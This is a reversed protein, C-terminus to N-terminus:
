AYGITVITVTFLTVRTPRTEHLKTRQPVLLQPTEATEAEVPQMAQTAADAPRACCQRPQPRQAGRPPPARRAARGARMSLISLTLRPGRLLVLLDSSGASDCLHREALALAALLAFFAFHTLASRACDACLLARLLSSPSIGFNKPGLNMEKLEFM